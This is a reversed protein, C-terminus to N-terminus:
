LACGSAMSPVEAAHYCHPTQGETLARYAHYCRCLVSGKESITGIPWDSDNCVDTCGLVDTYTYVGAFNGCATAYLDCYNACAEERSQNTECRGNAVVTGGAGAAASTGAAGAGAAGMGASGGAAASPAAGAAGGMGAPTEMSGTGAMGGSGPNSPMSVTGAAGSAGASSPEAGAAGGTGASSPGKGAADGTGGNAAGVATEPGGSGGLSDDVTVEPLCAAFLGLGLLNLGLLNLGLWSSWAARRM